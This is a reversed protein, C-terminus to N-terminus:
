SFYFLVLLCVVLRDEITKYTCITKPTYSAFLECISLAHGWYQLKLSKKELKVYHEKYFIVLNSSFDPSTIFFLQFEKFM